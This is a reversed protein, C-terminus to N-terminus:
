SNIISCIGHSSHGFCLEVPRAKSEELFWGSDSMEMVAVCKEGKLKHWILSSIFIILCILNDHLAISEKGVVSWLM